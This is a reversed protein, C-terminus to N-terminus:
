YKNDIIDLTENLSEKMMKELYDTTSKNITEDIYKTGGITESYKLANNKTNIAFSETKITKINLPYVNESGWIDVESRLYSTTNEILDENTLNNELNLIENKNNYLYPQIPTGDNKTIWLVEMGEIKEGNKSDLFSSNKSPTPVISAYKHFNDHIPSNHQIKTNYFYYLTGYKNGNDDKTLESHSTKEPEPLNKINYDVGESSLVNFRDRFITGTTAMKVIGQVVEDNSISETLNYSIHMIKGDVIGIDNLAKLKESINNQLGAYYSKIKNTHEGQNRSQKLVSTSWDKQGSASPTSPYVLKLKNGSKVKPCTDHTLIYLEPISLPKNLNVSIVDKIDYYVFDRSSYGEADTESFIVPYLCRKVLRDNVMEFEKKSEYASTEGNYNEKDQVYYTQGSEDYVAKTNYNPRTSTLIKPNSM